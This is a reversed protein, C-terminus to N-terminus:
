TVALANMPHFRVNAGILSDFRMQYYKKKKMALKKANGTKKQM